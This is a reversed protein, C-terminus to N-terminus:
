RHRCHLTFLLLEYFSCAFFFFSFSPRFLFSFLYSGDCFLVLFEDGDTINEPTIDPKAIVFPQLDKDGIARSVTLMGMVRGKYVFGTLLHTDPVRSLFCAIVCVCVEDKRQTSPPLSAPRKKREPPSTTRRFPLPRAPEAFSQVRIVLM